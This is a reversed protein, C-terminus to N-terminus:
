ISFEFEMELHGRLVVHVAAGIRFRCGFSGATFEAVERQNLLGRTVLTGDGCEEVIKQLVNTKRKSCQALIRAEGDDGDQRARDFRRV